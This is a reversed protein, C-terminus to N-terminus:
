HFGLIEQAFTYTWGPFKAGSASEPSVANVIAIPAGSQDLAVKPRERKHFTIRRGDEVNATGGYAPESFNYKWEGLLADLGDGPLVAEAYGGTYPHWNGHNCGDGDNAGEGFTHFICKFRTTNTAPDTHLFLVPDEAFCGDHPLNVPTSSWSTRTPISALGNEHTIQSLYPQNWSSAM